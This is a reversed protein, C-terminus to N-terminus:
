VSFHDARWVLKLKRRVRQLANDVTKPSINLQRAMQDYTSGRLFLRFIQWEKASLLSSIEYDLEKSKEKEILISEPTLNDAKEVDKDVEDIPIDQRNSKILATKMKNTICINSYTSFQADIDQEYSRIANLLGLLGEQMLDDADVANNSMSVAKARVIKAYRSILVSAANESDKCHVVLEEDDLNYYDIIESSSQLM